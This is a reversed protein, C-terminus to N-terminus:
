FNYNSFCILRIVSRKSKISLWSKYSASEGHCQRCENTHCSTSQLKLFRHIFYSQSMFIDLNNVYPCKLPKYYAWRQNLERRITTLLIGGWGLTRLATINRGLFNHSFRSSRLILPYVPFIRGRNCSNWREMQWSGVPCWFIVADHQVFEQEAAFSSSM